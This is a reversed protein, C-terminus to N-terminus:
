LEVGSLYFSEGPRFILNDMFLILRARVAIVRLGEDPLAIKGTM